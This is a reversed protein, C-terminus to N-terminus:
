DAPCPETGEDNEVCGSECLASEFTTDITDEGDQPDTVTVTLFELGSSLDCDSTATVPSPMSTVSFGDCYMLAGEYTLTEGTPDDPDKASVTVQITTAGNGTCDLGYEWAVYDIM